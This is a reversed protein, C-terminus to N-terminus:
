PLGMEAPRRVYHKPYEAPVYKRIDRARGEFTVSPDIFLRTLLEGYLRYDERTFGRKGVTFGTDVSALANPWLQSEYDGYDPLVSLVVPQSGGVMVRHDMGQVEIGYKILELRGNIMRQRMKEDDVKQEEETLRLPYRDATIKVKIARLPLLTAELKVNSKGDDRPDVYEATEIVDPPNVHARVLNHLQVRLGAMMERSEEYPIHEERPRAQFREIVGILTRETDKM